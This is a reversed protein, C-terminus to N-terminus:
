LKPGWVWFGKAFHKPNGVKGLFQKKLIKDYDQVRGCLTWSAVYRLSLGWLLRIPVVEGRGTRVM